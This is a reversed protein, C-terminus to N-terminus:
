PNPITGSGFNAAKSDGAVAPTASRATLAWDYDAYEVATKGEAARRLAARLPIDDVRDALWPLVGRAKWDDAYWKVIPNLVVADLSADYAVSKPDNCFLAAQDDLQLNLCRGCYAEPRIPPCWRAGCVLAFYVRPDDFTPRLLKHELDNLRVTEGAVPHEKVDFFGVGDYRYNMVSDKIRHTIAGNVVLANYANCYFPTCYGITTTVGQRGLLRGM